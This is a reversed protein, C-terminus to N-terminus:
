CVSRGLESTVWGLGARAKRAVVQLRVMAVHVCGEADPPHKELYADLVDQLYADREAAAVKGSFSHSTTRLWGLFADVDPHVADVDILEVADPELGAVPLWTQYEEPGLYTWPTPLVGHVPAM